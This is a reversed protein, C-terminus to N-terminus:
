SAAAPLASRIPAPPGRRVADGGCFRGARRCFPFRAPWSLRAGCPPVPAGGAGGGGGRGARLAQGPLANASKGRTWESRFPRRTRSHFCVMRPTEPRHRPARFARARRRRIVPRARLRLAGCRGPAARTRMETRACQRVSRQVTGWGRRRLTPGAGRREGAGPPASLTLFPASLRHVAVRRGWRRERRDAAEAGSEADRRGRRGPSEDCPGGCRPHEVPRRAAGGGSRRSSTTERPPPCIPRAKQCDTQFRRKRRTRSPPPPASARGAARKPGAKPALLSAPPFRPSALSSKLRNRLGNLGRAARRGGGPARFM